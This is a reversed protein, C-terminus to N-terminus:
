VIEKIDYLKKYDVIVEYENRSNFYALVNEKKIKAQYVKGNKEFRDAFWQAVNKKISWSLANVSGKPKVGRYVTLEYSFSKYKKLEDKKMLYELDAKKFLKVFEYPKINKDQNSFEVCVWMDALFESYDKISLYKYIYKFFAPLYPKTILSRFYSVDDIEEIIPLLTNRALELNKPQSIDVIEYVGNEKKVQYFTSNFFPHSILSPFNDNREIDLQLFAVAIQKVADLNTTKLM